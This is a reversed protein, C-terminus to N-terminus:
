PNSDSNVGLVELEWLKAHPWKKSWVKFLYRFTEYQIPEEQAQRWGATQGAIKAKAQKQAHSIGIGIWCALIPLVILRVGRYLFRAVIQRREFLRIRHRYM